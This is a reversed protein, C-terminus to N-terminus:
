MEYVDKIENADWFDSDDEKEGEDEEISQTVKDNESSGSLIVPNMFSPTGFAQAVCTAPPAIQMNQSISPAFIPYPSQECKGSNSHRKFADRRTYTKSCGPCKFREAKFGLHTTTKLHKRYSEPYIVAGDRSCVYKGNPQGHENIAPKFVLDNTIGGKVYRHQFNKAICKQNVLITRTQPLSSNSGTTLEPEHHQHMNMIPLDCPNAAGSVSISSGACVGPFPAVPMYPPAPGRAGDPTSTFKLRLFRTNPSCKGQLLM